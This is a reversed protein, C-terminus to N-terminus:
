RDNNYYKLQPWPQFPFECVGESLMIDGKQIKVSFM